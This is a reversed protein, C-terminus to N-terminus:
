TWNTVSGTLTNAGYAGAECSMINNLFSASYEVIPNQTSSGGYMMLNQLFNVGGSDMSIVINNGGLNGLTSDEIRWLTQTNTGQDLQITDDAFTGMINCNKVWCNTTGNSGDTPTIFSEDNGAGGMYTVDDFIIETIAASTDTITIVGLGAGIGLETGAGSIFECHQITNYSAAINITVNSGGAKGGVIRLNDVVCGAATWSIPADVAATTITFTPKTNRTGIGIISIGIVDITIDAAGSLTEAHGPMVYIIDGNSAACQSIAFDVTLFPQDPSSGHGVTDGGRTNGSDVWFIDGTTVSENVVTFIGGSQKRAFLPTKNM